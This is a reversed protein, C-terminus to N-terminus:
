DGVVPEIRFIYPRYMRPTLHFSALEEGLWEGRGYENWVQGTILDRLCYRAEPRISLRDLPLGFRFTAQEPLLSALGLLTTDDDCRILTFVQGAPREGHKRRYHGEDDVMVENFLFRGRRLTESERRALLLGRIFSEQRAEQGSWIMPVFGAMVLIGLLAQAVDSGRLAYAPWGRTDHTETFCIRPTPFGEASHGETSHPMIAWYDRLYEGFEYPTLTQQFLAMAMAYPHYDNSIDHSRVWLPGFLECYLAAEPKVSLLARRLDELLGRAGLNTRSAHSEIERSWNPEKGHPADVRFGDIDYDRVYRLAWDLMYAHFEPNAWDFSYTDEWGHSHVLEGAEDRAFWEPHETVYRSELSCGQAVFDALVRLGLDHAASVLDFFEAESGLTPELKEYDHIAYPSGLSRWNEDWPQNLKNRHAMIPLLYLTDVALEKIRPLAERLGAFGGFQGPHVEYVGTWDLARDVEGYIPPTIGTQDSVSRFRALASQYDGEHLLIVQMGGDLAEGPAVWGALWWDFGLTAHVSDGSVWPRGSEVDSVYWTLLSWEISPNHVILLGPGVDPADSLARGWLHPSGPAFRTDIGVEGSGRDPSVHRSVAQSAAASLPLRPRVGNGPAEFRCVGPDGLSIGSLGVRLGTLQVEEDSANEVRVRREILDGSTRYRDHLVLPGLGIQIILEGDVLEHSLYRPQADLPRYALDVAPLIPPQGAGHGLADPGDGWQLTTLAGSTPDIRLHYGGLRLRHDTM